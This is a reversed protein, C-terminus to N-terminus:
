TSKEDFSRIIPNSTMKKQLQEPFRVGAGILNTAEKKAYYVGVEGINEQAIAEKVLSAVNREYASSLVNVDMRENGVKREAAIEFHGDPKNLLPFICACFFAGTWFGSKRM